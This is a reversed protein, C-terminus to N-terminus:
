QEEGRMMEHRLDEARLIAAAVERMSKRRRRSKREIM